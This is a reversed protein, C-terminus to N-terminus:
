TVCACFWTSFNMVVIFIKKEKKGRSNMNCATDKNAKAWICTFLVNRYEYLSNIAAPVSCTDLLKSIKMLADYFDIDTKNKCEHWQQKKMQNKM